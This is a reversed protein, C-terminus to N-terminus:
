TEFDVSVISECNAAGFQAVPIHRPDKAYADLAARDRFTILLGADYSRASRVVDHGVKLEIIGSVDALRRLREQHQARAGSDFEPKYKFCVIHILM